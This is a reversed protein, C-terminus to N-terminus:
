TPLLGLGALSVHETRTVVLHDLVPIGVLKGVEVMRVTLQVDADSPEPSGSPHNHVLIASHIGARILSRYVERPHVDVHSLSGIGVVRVHRPRQRSDMGIVVFTEQPENGYLSRIYRGVDAPSRLATACPLEVRAVRRSLEFAAVIASASAPGVGPVAALESPTARSLGLVGFQELLRAAVVAGGPVLVGLLDADGMAGTGYVALKESAKM